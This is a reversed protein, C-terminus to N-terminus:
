AISHANQLGMAEPFDIGQRKLIEGARNFFCIWWRGEDVGM